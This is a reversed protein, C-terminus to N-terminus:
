LTTFYIIMFVWMTAHEIIRSAAYAILGGLIAPIATSFGFLNNPCIAVAIGYILCAPLYFWGFGSVFKICLATVAITEIIWLIIAGTSFPYLGPFLQPLLHFDLFYKALYIGQLVCFSIVTFGKVKEPKKNPNFAKPKYKEPPAYPKDTDIM